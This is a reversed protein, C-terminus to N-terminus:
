AYAAATNQFQSDYLRRYLGSKKLLSEHTGREVIRGEHLVVILSAKQVTSLRHAISITTRGKMLEDLAAQVARESESDLSSTAEDLILIPANKLIARAIAIRQRQGGSLSVGQEGIMSDYGEPRQVIFEHAHAGKAASIIEAESAGARGLAINNRITDNFLITEQTVVAIQSRLNRLLTQRIDTSGILIAGELPDYFRLLLNTLTTKGSGSAGVLAVMQGATVKLQIESVAANEGYGFTVNDFHIDAGEADLPKPDAPDAVSPEIALLEFVRQSAARSQELQHYLRTLAKAPQYMLFISGIFQFFEGASMRTSTFLTIYVFLLAVGIAGVFEILPGPIELSRIMRMYHSIFHRSTERFQAIVRAELNYAKVIRNGTFSEQMMSTLDAYRNQIEASSRRVKRAYIVVPAICVPFVALAIITLKPQTALLLAALAVVQVPDKVLTVLSNSITNQVAATDNVVRSMLDGTRAQHLFGVSLNNLHGFLTNRLDIITRIAVWQMCYVNLYGFMGRFFMVAPIMLIALLVVSTHAPSDSTPLWSAVQEVPRQIISPARILQDNLDPAGPSPFVISIALKVTIMIVPSSLGVLLGFLVGLILRGKYPATLALLRRLFESMSMAPATHM